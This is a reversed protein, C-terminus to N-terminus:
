CADSLCNCMFCVNLFIEPTKIAVEKIESFKFREKQNLFLTLIEFTQRCKEIM